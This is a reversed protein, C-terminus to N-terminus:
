VKKEGKMYNSFIKLCIPNPANAIFTLVLYRNAFHRCNVPPKSKFVLMTKLCMVSCFEALNGKMICM